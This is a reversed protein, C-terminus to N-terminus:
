VVMKRSSSPWFVVIFIVDFDIRLGLRWGRSEVVGIDRGGDRLRRRLALLLRLPACDGMNGVAPFFGREAKSLGSGEEGLTVQM